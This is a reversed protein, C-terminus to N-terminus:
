SDGPCSAEKERAARLARRFFETLFSFFDGAAKSSSDQTIRINRQCVPDTIELLLVQESRIHGWTFEPWFGVGMSAAIMNRVAAANDSEFIVRARFGAQRCFSDCIDRLQRFGMLSIFNEEAAESLAASTRHAFKGDAPVALYIKETCVFSNQAAPNKEHLQMTTVTIDCMDSQSNQLMQFHLEPRCKKYEIIAETVLASAALVNLRVTLSDTRAMAQLTQPIRDLQALLPACNAQLYKGYETLVINRGKSAFLPVGLNEELRHMAQTLAPQAIHLKQASRTIHQSEAVELFYRLQQLEM